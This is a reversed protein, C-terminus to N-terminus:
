RDRDSTMLILRIMQLATALTGAVYTMAASNLVSNIGIEEKNDILKYKKLMKKAKNSAGFEVPLTVIQFLLGAAMLIVGAYIFNIAQAFFGILIVIYSAKDCVNVIPVFASRFKMYSNGEKDQIAHGVEHAAIASSAISEGHFVEKSLKVVKRKPDYHDSLYGNTEIIMIENMDNEDLIKRAVDFGSLGKKNDKKKYKSFSSNVKITCITPLLLIIIVLFIDLYRDM